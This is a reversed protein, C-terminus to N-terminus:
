NFTRVHKIGGDQLTVEETIPIDITSVVKGNKDLDSYIEVDKLSCNRHMRKYLWKGDKKLYKARGNKIQSFDLINLNWTSDDGWVCGAVLAFNHFITEENQDEEDGTWDVIIDKYHYYRPIRVEVPCFHLLSEKSEEDLEVKKCDPLTMFEVTQYDASYIAYDQGDLSFVAFTEQAFSPYKRVYEGIKSEGQYIECLVFNWCGPKTEQNTTKLSYNM